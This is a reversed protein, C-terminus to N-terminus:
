KELKLKTKEQAKKAKAEEKPNAVDESKENKLVFVKYKQDMKSKVRTLIGDMGTENEIEDLTQERFPLYRRNTMDNKKPFKYQLENRTKNYDVIATQLEKHKIVSQEFLEKQQDVNDTAHMAKLLGKIEDKTTSIKRELNNLSGTKITYESMLQASSNLGWALFAVLILTKKFRLFLEM